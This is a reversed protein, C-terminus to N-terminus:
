LRQTKEREGCYLLFLSILLTGIANLGAQRLGPGKKPMAPPTLLSGSPFHDFSLPYDQCPTNWDAMSPHRTYRAETFLCLDTLMLNKVMLRKESLMASDAKIRFLSHVFIAMLLILNLAAAAFFIDAKRM